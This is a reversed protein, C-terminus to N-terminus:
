SLRPEASRAHTDAHWRRHDGPAYRSWTGGAETVLWTATKDHHGLAKAIVPAPSPLQIARLAKPGDPRSFNIATM